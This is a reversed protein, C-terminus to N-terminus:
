NGLINKPQPLAAISAAIAQTTIEFGSYLRLCQSEVLNMWVLTFTITSSLMEDRGSTDM